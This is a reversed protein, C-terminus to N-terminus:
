QHVVVGLRTRHEVLDRAIRDIGIGTLRSRQLILYLAADPPCDAETSAVRAARAVASHPGVARWAALELESVDAVAVIRLRIAVPRSITVVGPPERNRHDTNVNRAIDGEVRIRTTIYRV